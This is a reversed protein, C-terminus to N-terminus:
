NIVEFEYIDLLEELDAIKLKTDKVGDLVSKVNGDQVYIIAPVNKLHSINLSNKVTELYNDNEIYDTLDVYYFVDNLKYKDIVKKLDKEFNYVYEDKTFGLYMFYSTPAEQRIQSLSNIDSIRSEITNSSILYSTLLKEEKKVNYWNFIFIALLIGGVIILFAYLYNIPNIYRENASVKVEKKSTSSKTSKKMINTVDSKKRAM